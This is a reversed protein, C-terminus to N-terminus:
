FPISDAFHPVDEKLNMKPPGAIDSVSQDMEKAKLWCDYAEVMEVFKSASPSLPQGNENSKDLLWDVFSRAKEYPVDLLRKGRYERGVGIVYGELEHFDSVEGIQAGSVAGNATAAITKPLTKQNAQGQEQTMPKVDKITELETEDLIGLGCISLTVRRKAKTEAKMLANALSDSKLNMISVAGISEDTRGNPMKAQATVAYVDGVKERSVITISVSKLNRLQDTCDKKAYLCLKNNLQIYGFPQTLPNLGLSSCVKVYLSSRQEESLRSLDNLMLAREENSLVNAIEASM